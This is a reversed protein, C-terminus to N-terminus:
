QGSGIVVWATDPASWATDSLILARRRFAVACLDANATRADYRCDLALYEDRGLADAAEDLAAASDLIRLSPGSM